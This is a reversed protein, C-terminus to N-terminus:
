FLKIKEEQNSENQIKKELKSIKEDIKDQLKKIKKKEVDEKEDILLLYKKAKEYIRGLKM